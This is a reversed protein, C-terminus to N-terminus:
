EGQLTIARMRMEVMQWHSRAPAPAPGAASVPEPAMLPHAVSLQPGQLTWREPSMLVPESKSNDQVKIWWTFTYGQTTQEKGEKCRMMAMPESVKVWSVKAPWIWPGM